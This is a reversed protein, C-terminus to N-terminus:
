QAARVDPQGTMTKVLFTAIKEAAARLHEVSVRVYGMTVDGSPLAHNM